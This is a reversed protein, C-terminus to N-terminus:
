WGDDSYSSIHKVSYFEPLFLLSLSTSHPMSNSSCRSSALAVIDLIAEGDTVFVPFSHFIFEQPKVCTNLRDITTSIPPSSREPPCQRTAFIFTNWLSLNLALVPMYLYVRVAIFAFYLPVSPLSSDYLSIFERIYAVKVLTSTYDLKCCYALFFRSIDIFVDAPSFLSLSLTQTHTYM